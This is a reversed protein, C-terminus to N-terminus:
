SQLRHCVKTSLGCFLYLMRLYSFNEQREKKTLCIAILDYQNSIFFLHAFYYPKLIHIGKIITIKTM